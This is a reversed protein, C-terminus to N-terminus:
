HVWGAHLHPSDPPHQAHLPYQMGTYPTNGSPATNKEEVTNAGTNFRQISYSIM